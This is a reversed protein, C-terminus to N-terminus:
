PQIAAIVEKV